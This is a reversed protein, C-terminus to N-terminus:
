KEMEKKLNEVTFKHCSNFGKVYQNLLKGDGVHEEMKPIDNYPVLEIARQLGAKFGKEEYKKAAIEHIGRSSLTAEMIGEEKAERRTKEIQSDVVKAIEKEAELYVQTDKEPAIKANLYVGRVIMAITMEWRKSDNQQRRFSSTKSKTMRKSRMFM